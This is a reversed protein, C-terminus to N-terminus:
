IIFDHGIGYDFERGNGFGVVDMLAAVAGEAIFERFPEPAYGVGGWGRNVGYSRFITPAGQERGDDGSSREQARFSTFKSTLFPSARPMIPALPDPLVVM